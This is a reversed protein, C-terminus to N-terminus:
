YSYVPVEGGGEEIFKKFNIADEEDEDETTNRMRKLLQLNRRTPIMQTENCSCDVSISTYSKENFITIKKIEEINTLINEISTAPIQVKLRHLSSRIDDYMLQIGNGHCLTTVDVTRYGNQKLSLSVVGSYELLNLLLKFSIPTLIIFAKKNDRKIEIVNLRSNYTIRIVTDTFTEM